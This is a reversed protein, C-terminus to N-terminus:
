EGDVGLRTVIDRAEDLSSASLTREIQRRELGDLATLPIGTDEAVSHLALSGIGQQVGQYIIVTDGDTGVFYRTQTWEYALSLVYPPASIPTTGLDARTAIAIGLAMLFLGVTLFALRRILSSLGGLRQLMM